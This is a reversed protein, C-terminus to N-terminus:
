ECEVKVNLVSGCDDCITHITECTVCSCVTVDTKENHKCNNTYDIYPRESEKYSDDWFQDPDKDDFCGGELKNMLYIVLLIMAVSIILAKVM